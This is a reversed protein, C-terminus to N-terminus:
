TRDGFLSDIEPVAEEAFAARLRPSLNKRGPSAYATLSTRARTVATYWYKRGVQPWQADECAYLHVARFETGKSAKVTM